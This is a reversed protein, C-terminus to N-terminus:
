WLSKAFSLALIRPAQVFHLAALVANWRFLQGSRDAPIGTAAPASM